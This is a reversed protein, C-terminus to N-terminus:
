EGGLELEKVRRQIEDSMEKLMEAVDPQVDTTKVNARRQFGKKGRWRRIQEPSYGTLKAIDNDGYGCDHLVILEEEALELVNEGKNMRQMNGELGNLRRWLQARKWSTQSAMRAMGTDSYGYEYAAQLIADEQATFPYLHSHTKGAAKKRPRLLGLEILKAEMETVPVANLEALIVVHEAINEANRWSSRIEENTMCM